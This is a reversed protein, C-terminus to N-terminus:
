PRKHESEIKNMMMALVSIFYKNLDVTKKLIVTSRRAYQRYLPFMYVLSIYLCWM